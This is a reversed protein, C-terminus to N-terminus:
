SFYPPEPVMSILSLPHTSHTSHFIAHHTSHLIAHRTYSQMDLSLPEHRAWPQTESLTLVCSVASLRTAMGEASTSAGRRPGHTSAACSGKLHCPRM